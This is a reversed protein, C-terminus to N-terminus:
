IGIDVNLETAIVIFVVVFLLFDCLSRSFPFFHIDNLQENTAVSVFRYNNTKM